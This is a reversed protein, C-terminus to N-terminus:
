QDSTQLIKLFFLGPPGGKVKLQDELYDKLDRMRTEDEDLRTFVLQAAQLAFAFWGKLDNFLLFKRYFRLTNVVGCSSWGDNKTKKQTELSESALLISNQRAIRGFAVEFIYNCTNTHVMTDSITLMM